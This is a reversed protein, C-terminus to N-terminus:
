SPGLTKSWVDKGDARSLASVVSTSGKMSQVYIRDGKIAISGYGRGLSNSSWIQAPGAAPWERLLGTESSIGTRDPGQWQPWDPGQGSQGMTVVGTGLAFVAASAFIYRRIM